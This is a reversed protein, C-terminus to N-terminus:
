KATKKVGFKKIAGAAVLCLGGLAAEYKIRLLLEERQYEGDLLLERNTLSFGLSELQRVIGGSLDQRGFCIRLQETSRLEQTTAATFIQPQDTNLIGEALCLKVTTKLQNQPTDAAKADEPYAVALVEEKNAGLRQCAQRNMYLTTMAGSDQIGFAERLYEKSLATYSVTYDKGGFFITISKEQQPSVAVVDKLSEMSLQNDGRAQGNEGQTRLADATKTNGDPSAVVYEVPTNSLGYLMAGRSVASAWFGIAVLLSLLTIKM